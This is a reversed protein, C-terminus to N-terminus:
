YEFYHKDAAEELRKMERRARMESSHTIPEFARWGDDFSGRGRVVGGYVDRVVEVPLNEHTLTIIHQPDHRAGPYHDDFHRTVVLYAVHGTGLQPDAIIDSDNEIFDCLQEWEIKTIRVRTNITRDKRSRSCYYSEWLTPHINQFYNDSKMLEEM